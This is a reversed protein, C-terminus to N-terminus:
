FRGAFRVEVVLLGGCVDGCVIVCKYALVVYMYQVKWFNIFGTGHFGDEQASSVGQVQYLSSLQRVNIGVWSQSAQPKVTILLQNYEYSRLHKM